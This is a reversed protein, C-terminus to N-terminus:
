QMVIPYQVGMITVIANEDCTGDGYNVSITALGEMDVNLIGGRIWRCCVLVDLRNEVTLTYSISDSSVGNQSGIIHYNDDCMNFPTLDGAVWERTTNEEYEITKNDPTTVVGDNIVVTYYLHDDANRGENTVIQTGEVKYDNQYYNEFTITVVTGADRYFGTTEFNIKGRRYRGDECLLNETGYDISIDKPWTVADFPVISIIPYTDKTGKNGGDIQEDSYKAADDTESFTDSFLKNVISYETLANLTEATTPPPDAEVPEKCSFAFIAMLAISILILFKTMHCLNLTRHLIFL